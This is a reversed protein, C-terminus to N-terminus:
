TKRENSLSKDIQRQLLDVWIMDGNVEEQFMWRCSKHDRKALVPYDTFTERGGTLKEKIKAIDVRTIDHEEPHKKYRHLIIYDDTRNDFMGGYEADSSSLPATMGAYKHGELHKRRATSTNPHVLLYVALNSRKQFARLDTLSERIYSYESLGKDRMIKSNVKLSSFPDIICSCYDDGSKGELLSIISYMDETKETDLFHMYRDVLRFAYTTQEPSLNTVDTACIANICYLHLADATNESSWVLVKKNLKIAMLLQLYIILETKGAGPIGLVITMNRKYRWHKDIEGAGWKEGLRVRGARYNQIFELRKDNVGM